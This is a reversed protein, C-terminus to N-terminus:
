THFPMEEALGGYIPAFMSHFGEDNFFVHHSEMDEQLVKSTARAADERVGSSYVGVDKVPDLNINTATAM